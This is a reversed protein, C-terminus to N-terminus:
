FFTHLIDICPSDSCLISVCLMYHWDQIIAISMMCCRVQYISSHLPVMAALVIASALVLLHKHYLCCETEAAGCCTHICKTSTSVSVYPDLKERILLLQKKHIAQREKNFRHYIEEFEQLSLMSDGDKDCQNIIQTIADESLGEGSLKRALNGHESVNINGDGDADFLKFAERAASKERQFSSQKKLVWSPNKKADNDSDNTNEESVVFRVPPEQIEENNTFGSLLSQPVVTTSSTSMFHIVQRDM